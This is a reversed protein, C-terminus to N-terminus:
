IRELAGHAEEEPVARARSEGLTYTMGVFANLNENRRFLPSDRNAAFYFSEQLLGFYIGYRDRHYAQFYSISQSLWGPRAAFASRQATAEEPRVEYYTKQFDRTAATLTFALQGRWNSKECPNWRCHSKSFHWIFDLEGTQGAMKWSKWDLTQFSQYAGVRIQYEPHFHSVLQPGLEFRWPLDAMGRRIEIDDSRAAPLGGAGMEVSWSDNRSLYARAGERDDARLIEGRYQFTPFPLAYDRSQEAAPYQWLRLLGFGVGYEWLAPNEEEVQAKGLAPLLFTTILLAQVLRMLFIMFRNPFFALLHYEPAFFLSVLRLLNLHIQIEVRFLDLPSSSELPIFVDPKAAPEFIFVDVFDILEDILDTALDSLLHVASLAGFATTSQGDSGLRLIDFAQRITQLNRREFEFCAIELFIVLTIKNEFLSGARKEFAITTRNISMSRFRTPAIRMQFSLVHAAAAPVDDFVSQDARNNVVSIFQELLM